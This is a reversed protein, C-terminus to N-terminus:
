KEGNKEKEKLQKAELSLRRLNGGLYENEWSQKVMHPIVVSLVTFKGKPEKSGSLVWCSSPNFLLLLYDM